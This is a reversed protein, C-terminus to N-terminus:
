SITWKMPCQATSDAHLRHTLTRIPKQPLPTRALLRIRPSVSRIRERFITSTRCWAIGTFRALFSREFLADRVECANVFSMWGCALVFGSM